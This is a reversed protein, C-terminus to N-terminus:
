GAPLLGLTRMLGPLTDHIGQVHRAYEASGRWFPSLNLRALLTAHEPDDKAKRFAEEFLAVLGPEMGRPAVFGAPLDFLVDFGEERATPVEPWRPFRSEATIALARFTGGDIVGALAGLADYVLDVDRAMVANIMQGGGAFPVFLFKAGTVHELLRMGFPPNAPTGGGAYSIREPQERGRAVLDKLDRIPSDKLVAWGFNLTSTAALFSFDRPADYDVRQVVGIRFSADTVGAIVSGDPRQMRLYSLAVSGSAGARNEVVLTQGLHRSAIPAMGRLYTDTTGGPAWPCIMRIPRDPLQARARAALFPLALAGGLLARRPALIM